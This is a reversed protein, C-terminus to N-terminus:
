GSVGAGQFAGFPKVPLGPEFYGGAPNSFFSADPNGTIGANDYLELGMDNTDDNYTMLGGFGALHGANVVINGPTGGTGTPVFLCTAGIGTLPNPGAGINSFGMANASASPVADIITGGSGVTIDFLPTAGNIGNLGCSSMFATATPSTIMLTGLGTPGQMDIVTGASATSTIPWSSNLAAVGTGTLGFLNVYDGNITSSVNAGFPATTFTATIIGTTSNYTVSSASPFTFSTKVASYVGPTQGSGASTIPFSQGGMYGELGTTRSFGTISDCCTIFTSGATWQGLGSAGSAVMGSSWNPAIVCRLVGAAAINCTFSGNRNFAGNWEAGDPYPTGSLRYWVMQRTGIRINSVLSGIGNTQCIGNGPQGFPASGNLNNEGCTALSWATGFTGNTTGAKFAIDICNSLGTGTSHCGATVATSGTVGLSGALTISFTQGIQGQGTRTDQSPPLSVSTIVQPTCGSCTAWLGDVFPIAHAALGGTFTVVSQGAGNTTVTGTGTSAFGNGSDLCPAAISNTDCNIADAKTRDLTPNSCNAPSSLGGWVACAWRRGVRGSGWPGNTGHPSYGIPGATSPPGGQVVIDSMPGAYIQAGSGQYDVINQMAINTCTPSCGPGATNYTSGNAGWTGSALGTIYTGLGISCTVSGPNCGLVMGEFPVGSSASTLTLLSTTLTGNFTVPTVSDVVWAEFPGNSQASSTAGVATSNFYVPGEGRWYNGMIFPTDSTQGPITNPLRTDLLWSVQQTYGPGGIAYTQPYAVPGDAVGTGYINGSVGSYSQAMITSLPGSRATGNGVYDFGQPRASATAGSDPSIINTWNAVLVAGSPPAHGSTFTISYDGTEYNVWSSAINTGTCNGGLNNWIFNFPNSSSTSDQCLQTTVGSVIQSVTFTGAEILQAGFGNVFAVGTQQSDRLYWPAGGPPDARTPVLSANCSPSCSLTWVQSPTAAHGSTYAASTCGATCNVLTPSGTVNLVAGVQTAGQLLGTTPPTGSTGNGRSITLSTSSMTAGAFSAGTQTAANFFLPGSAAVGSSACLTSKSCFTLTSGDGSALNQAQTVNGMVLPNSAIGDRTINVATIPWGFANGLLQQFNGIGEAIPTGTPLTSFRDGPVMDVTAPTYSNAIFPGQDLGGAFSNWLNEGWLGTFYNLFSGGQFTFLPSVQGEGQVAFVGGIKIYNPMTAYAAGNAARVAVYLPGTSAPINLAQGSWNWVTGSSLTAAYSGLNEWGPGGTPSLAAQISSAVQAQITTPTGGLASTDYTGTLDITATGTCSGFGSCSIARQNVPVTLGPGIDHITLAPGPAIAGGDGLGTLTLAVPTGSSGVGNSAGNSLLYTGCMPFGTTPCNSLTGYGVISVPTSIGSNLVYQGPVPTTLTAYMTEPTTFSRYYNGGIGVLGGTVAGILQIPQGTINNGGDSVIMGKALTPGTPGTVSLVNTSFPLTSSGGTAIMAESPVTQSPSVTYTGSFGLGSGAGSSTNTSQNVITTGATVLGGIDSLVVGPVLVSGPNAVSAAAPVTVTLTTGSISATIQAGLTGTFSTYNSSPMSTVHLTPTSGGGNDIYGMVVSSPTPTAPALKGASMAESTVTGASASLTFNGATGSAITPCASPCGTIGPGSIVTAPTTPQTNSIAGYQTSSVTLATGSISGTFQAVSADGWIGLDSMPYYSQVNMGNTAAFSLIDYGSVKKAINALATTSPAGGTAQPFPGQLNALNGLTGGWGQANNNVTALASGIVNFFDGMAAQTRPTVTYNASSAVGSITQYFIPAVFIVGPSSSSWLTGTNTVDNTGSINGSLPNSINYTGAAGTGTGFSSIVTNAPINTGTIRTGPVLPPAPTGSVTIVTAGSSGTATFTSTAPNATLAYTTSSGSNTPGLGTSSFTGYPAIVNGTVTGFVQTNPMLVSAMTGGTGSSAGPNNAQPTGVPGSLPNGVITAGSTGVVAVYTVGSVGGGGRVTFESGVRYGSTASALTFTVYGTGSSYNWSSITQNNPATVTVAPTSPSQTVAQTYGIFSATGQNLYPVLAPAGNLANGNEDVASFYQSGPFANPGTEDAGNEGVLAVFHQATAKTTIGTGGVGYPNTASTTPFTITSGTGSLALGGSAFAVPTSCSGSQVAATGVLTTGTTGGIATYTTNFPTPFSSLAYTQGPQIGHATTVHTTITVQGSVPSNATCTDATGVATAQQAGTGPIAAVSQTVLAGFTGSCGFGPDYLAPTRVVGNISSVGWVGSPERICDGGTATFTNYTGVNYGTQGSASPATNNGAASWWNQAGTLNKQVLFQPSGLAAGLSVVSNAAGNGLAYQVTNVNSPSVQGEFLVSFSNAVTSPFFEAGATGGNPQLANNTVGSQAATGFNTSRAPVSSPTNLLAIGIGGAGLLLLTALAYNRGILEIISLTALFKLGRRM